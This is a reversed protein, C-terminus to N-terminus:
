KLSVKDNYYRNKIIKEGISYAKLLHEKENDNATTGKIENGKIVTADRKTNVLIRGMVKGKYLDDNLGLLYAVTPMIDIQGGHATIKKGEIGQGYIILPIKKEYNQWWDGEVKMHQIDDNYYKHVGGHDGYIVVVTNDLLGSNRLLSIFMGIQKDTYHLSQFYGGLYNEDLEKPLNLERYKPDIDFPGHSTLTPLVGYFPEPLDKIKNYFQNLFTRDSLGFGAYEDRNYEKIDWQENFMLANHHTEGWNWDSGNEAHTSVTYYGSKRLIYPLSNYKVEGHTLFTISDGLPLTSSNVMMDCDISNGANNQEYFNNFYLSNNALASLNPMIEQGLVKKGIVFNELSEIQLFVINKGKFIGKYENSELDENNYKLWSEIDKIDEENRKFNMKKLTENIEFGHYALPGLNKMEIYHSWETKFLRTDGNTIDKVDFAYYYSSVVIVGLSFTLFAKVYSKKGMFRNKRIILVLFIIIDIWLLLDFIKFQFLSKQFPNFLDNFIIHRLGLFSSNVRFYWLDGTLLVTFITNIVLCYVKQGKGFLYAPSLIIFICAIYFIIAIISINFFSSVVSIITLFIISKIVMTFVTLNVININKFSNIINNKIKM